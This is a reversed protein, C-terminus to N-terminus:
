GLDVLEGIREITYDPEGPSDGGPASTLTRGLSVWVGFMGHRQPASVDWEINDGIFWTREPPEGFAEIAHEYAAAHPKGIGLEGEIQIHEFYPELQFREVKGRQDSASGNTVLGLRFGADLLRELVDTAGPFLRIDAARRDRYDEAVERALPAPTDLGLADFAGQVVQASASRLDMRGQAAREADDWFADRSAYIASLLDEVALGEVVDCALQAATRWSREFSGTYDIITDDLDFLLVRPTPAGDPTLLAM